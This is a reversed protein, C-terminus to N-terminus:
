KGLPRKQTGTRRRPAPHEAESRLQAAPASLHATSPEATSSEPTVSGTGGPSAAGAVILERTRNATRRIGAREDLIGGLLGVFPVKGLMRHRWPGRPRDDFLGPVALLGRTLRWLARGGARLLGTPEAPGEDHDQEAALVESTRGRPLDRGLLVRGLLPVWDDLDSVGSEKAVSCVALGQASAGLADQLPFRDAFVGFIRPTAAIPAVVAALRDVWWDVRRKLSLEAWDASGPHVSGTFGRKVGRAVRGLTTRAPEDDEPDLWSQPDALLRSALAAYRSLTWVLTDDSIAPAM